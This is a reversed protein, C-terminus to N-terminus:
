KMTAFMQAWLYDRSGNDRYVIVCAFGVANYSDKVINARHGPSNMWDEMVKPVTTQNWALNEGAESLQNRFEPDSDLVTFCSTGDPRTHSWRVGAEAARTLAFESLKSSFSLPALGLKARENNVSALMENEFGTVVTVTISKQEGNQTYNITRAPPAVGSSVPQTTQTRTTTQRTTQAKTTAQKTAPASTVVKKSILNQSVAPKSTENMKEGTYRYKEKDCGFSFSAILLILFLISVSRKM